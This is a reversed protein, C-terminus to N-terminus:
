YSGLVPPRMAPHRIFRSEAWVLPQLVKNRPAYLPHRPQGSRTLGLMLPGCHGPFRKIRQQCFPELVRQVMCSRQLMTGKAGWGLWLDMLGQEAWRAFWAALVADNEVGVPDHVTRLAAPHPSRRAFLNLVVLEAFGWVTAFGILRRLTPDNRRADATSPNLGIFLLTRPGDAGAQRAAAGQGVALRRRLWWRYLGDGSFSADSASIPDASSSFGNVPRAM